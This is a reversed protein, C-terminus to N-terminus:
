KLKWAFIILTDFIVSYFLAQNYYRVNIIEFTIWNETVQYKNVARVIMGTNRFSEHGSGEESLTGISPPRNFITTQPTGTTFIYLPIIILIFYYLLKGYRTSKDLLRM